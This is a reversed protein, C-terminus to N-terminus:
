GERGHAMGIVWGRRGRGRARTGSGEELRQREQQWVQQPEEQEGKKRHRGAERQTQGLVAERRYRTEGVEALLRDHVDLWGLRNAVEPQGAPGWLTDDRDFIRTAVADEVARKRRREIAPAYAGPISADIGDPSGIM